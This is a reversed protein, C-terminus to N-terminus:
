TSAQLPFGQLVTGDIQYVLRQNPSDPVDNALTDMFVDFEKVSNGNFRVLIIAM